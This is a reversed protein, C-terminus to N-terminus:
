GQGEPFGAIDFLMIIVTVGLRRTDTDTLVVVFGTQLSCCYDECGGRDIAAAVGGPLPLDVPAIRSRVAGCKRVDRGVAVLHFTNKGRDFCAAGPIRCRL